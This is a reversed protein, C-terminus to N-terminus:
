IGACHAKFSVSVYALRHAKSSRKGLQDRPREFCLTINHDATDYWGSHNRGVLKISDQRMLTAETSEADLLVGGFFISGAFAADAEEPTDLRSLAIHFHSVEDEREDVYWAMGSASVNARRVGSPHMKIERSRLPPGAIAMFEAANIRAPLPRGDILLSSATFEIQMDCLSPLRM